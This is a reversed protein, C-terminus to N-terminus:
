IARRMRAALIPFWFFAVGATLFSILSYPLLNCKLLAAPVVAFVVATGAILLGGSPGSRQRQLLAKLIITGVLIWAVFGIVTLYM